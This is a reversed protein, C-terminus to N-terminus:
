LRLTAGGIGDFEVRVSDGAQAALVGVWTGTTVVTGAPLTAGRRTAHRLWAPILWAPDGLAHTGTRLTPPQSGIWVGCRQAAWDRRAYPVWAGLALGAHSQLDALRLLAAAAAGEHWRSDVLEISVTMADILGDVADPELRAAQAPTVEGALRLAVEAEIGRTHLPWDAFDAPGSRVGAPPLASHGLVAERSPGGSKWYRPAAEGFWGFAAGVADQVAYADDADRLAHPWQAAPLQAHHRRAAVLAQALAARAQEDVGASV